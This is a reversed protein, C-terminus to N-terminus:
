LPGEPLQKNNLCCLPDSKHIETPPECVRHYFRQPRHFLRASGPRSLPSSDAQWCWFRLLCPNSGQTPFIGQLLFHCGVRINKGQFNLSRLLRSAVPGPTAFLRVRSLPQACVCAVLTGLKPSLVLRNELTPSCVGVLMSVTGTAECGQWCSRNDPDQITAMSTPTLYHRVPTKNANGAHIM